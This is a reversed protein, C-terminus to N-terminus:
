RVNAEARAGKLWRSLRLFGKSADSRTKHTGQHPKEHGEPGGEPTGAAMTVAAYGCDELRCAMKDEMDTREEAPSPKWRIV